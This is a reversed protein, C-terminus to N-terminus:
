MGDPPPPLEQPPHVDDLQEVQPQYRRRGGDIFAPSV